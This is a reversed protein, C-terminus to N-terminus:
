VSTKIPANLSLKLTILGGFYAVSNPFCAGFVGAHLLFLEEEWFEYGCFSLSVKLFTLLRIWAIHVASFFLCIFLLLQHHVDPPAEEVGCYICM